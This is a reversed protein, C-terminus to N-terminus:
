RWDDDWIFDNEQKKEEVEPYQAYRFEEGNPRRITGEHDYIITLGWSNRVTAKELNGIAEYPVLTNGAVISALIRHHGDYCFQYENNTITKSMIPDDPYIGNEKILDALERITIQDKRFHTSFTDRISQTPYFLEPSAWTKAFKKGQRELEECVKITKAIDEISALKTGIVLKFNDIDTIKVGYLEMYRKIEEERRSATDKIAEDVSLYKDEKGRKPDNFIREGATKKDATLRVSFTDKIDFWGLRADIIFVENPRAKSNIEEGIKTIEEDMHKDIYRLEEAFDPNSNIEEISPNEIEPFKKKYERIAAKRFAEGASIIHVKLKEAEYLKKLEQSVSGKGSAPDGSITIIRNKYSEM